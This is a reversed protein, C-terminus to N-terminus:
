KREVQRHSHSHGHRELWDEASEYSTRETAVRQSRGNWWVQALAFCALCRTRIDGGRMVPECTGGCRECTAM